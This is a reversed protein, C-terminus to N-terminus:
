KRDVVYYTVVAGLVTSGLSLIRFSRMGEAFPTPLKHLSLILTPITLPPPPSPHPNHPNLPLPTLGTRHPPFSGRVAAHSGDSTDTSTGATDDFHLENRHRRRNDWMARIAHRNDKRLEHRERVSAPVVTPPIAVEATAVDAAPIPATATPPAVIAVEPPVVAPVVTPVAAVATAALPAALPDATTPVAVIAVVPPVPIVTPIVAVVVAAALPAAAIPPM